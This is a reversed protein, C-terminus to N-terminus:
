LILMFNLLYNGFKLSCPPLLGETWGKLRGIFGRKRKRGLHMQDFSPVTVVVVHLVPGVVIAPAAGVPWQLSEYGPEPM